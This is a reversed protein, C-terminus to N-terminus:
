RKASKQLEELKAVYKKVENLWKEFEEGLNDKPYSGNYFYEVHLKNIFVEFMEKYPSPLARKILGWRGISLSLYVMSAMRVAHFLADFAERVHRDKLQPDKTSMALNFYDLAAKISVKADEFTPDGLKEAYKMLYKGDGYVVEFSGLISRLLGADPMEGLELVVVDVNFELYEPNAVDLYGAYGKKAKTIVLLDVDRSFKAAYVASGFKVIEVIEPDYKVLGETIIKAYRADEM